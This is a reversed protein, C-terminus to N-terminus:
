RAAKKVPVARAKKAAVRSGVTGALAKRNQRNVPRDIPMDGLTSVMALQSADQSEIEALGMTLLQSKYDNFKEHFDSLGEPQIDLVVGNELDNFVRRPQGDTMLLFQARVRVMVVILQHDPKPITEIPEPAM